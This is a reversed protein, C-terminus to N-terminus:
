LRVRPTGTKLLPRMYSRAAIQTKRALLLMICLRHVHGDGLAGLDKETVPNTNLQKKEQMKTKSIILYNELRVDFTTMNRAACPKSHSLVRKQHSSSTSLSLAQSDGKM